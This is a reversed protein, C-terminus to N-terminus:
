AALAPAADARLRPFARRIVTTASPFNGNMGFASAAMLGLVRREDLSLDPASQTAGDLVRAAAILPKAFSEEFLLASDQPATAAFARLVNQAWQM